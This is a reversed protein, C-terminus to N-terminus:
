KDIFQNLFLVCARDNGEELIGGAKSGEGSLSIGIGEYLLRVQTVITRM